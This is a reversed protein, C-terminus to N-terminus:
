VGWGFGFKLARKLEAEDPEPSEDSECDDCQWGDRTRCWGDRDVADYFRAKLDSLHDLTLGHLDYEFARRCTDCWITIEGTIEPEPTITM